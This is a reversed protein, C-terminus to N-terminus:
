GWPGRFRKSTDARFHGQLTTNGAKELKLKAQTEERRSQDINKATTALLSRLEPNSLHALSQQDGRSLRSLQACSGAPADDEQTTALESGTTGTALPVTTPEVRQEVSQRLSRRPVTPETPRTLPSLIKGSPLRLSTNAAPVTQNLRHDGSEPINYFEAIDGSVDFRCHGKATMHHHVGEITSRRTACLICERSEYIVLHLHELLTEPDVTLDDQYPIVFGHAKSMHALNYTNAEGCFLCREPDFEPAASHDTNDSEESEDDFNTNKSVGV